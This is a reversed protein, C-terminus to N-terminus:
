TATQLSPTTTSSLQERTVSKDPSFKGGGTGNVIGNQAAWEVNPAYWKGPTVDTFNSETYQDPDVKAKNGLVTVFMGRTMPEDPSFTTASTGNFLKEGVAYDVATYYWKGPKVDTFKEAVASANVTLLSMGILLALLIAIWRKKMM